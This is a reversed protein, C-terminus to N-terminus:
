FAEGDARSVLRGPANEYRKTTQTVTDTVTITYRVDSLAGYYVWFRGNVPRGDLIKIMLEVNSSNFFWFAGTDGTLPIAKAQVPAGNQFPDRFEVSVRFRGQDGLFLAEAAGFIPTDGDLVTASPFAEVDARSAIQGPPNRYSKEENTLTDRVTLTYEVDSLAGSYVWFYGNVEQGDIMKVMLELNDPGFFWFSGTDKTLALPKGTGEEGSPKRWAVRAAFRGDPGLCLTEADLSCVGALGRGAIGLLNGDRGTSPPPPIGPFTGYYMAGTTWLAVFGGSPSAEVVPDTEDFEGLSILTEDDLPQWFRDFLRGTMGDHGPWVVLANGAKDLTVAPPSLGPDDHFGLMVTSDLLRGTTDFRRAKIRSGLIWVVAGDGEPYLVPVMFDVPEPISVEGEWTQSPGNFRRLWAGFANWTVVFGGDAHVAIRLDTYSLPELIMGQNVQVPEGVPTGDPGFRRVVVKHEQSSARGLWAVIFNGAADMGVDPISFISPLSVGANIQFAGGLPQDRRFLRAWIGNSNSGWIVVYLGSGNGAVRPPGEAFPGQEVWLEKSVPNGTRDLLRAKIGGDADDNERWVAVMGDTGLSALDPTNQFGRTHQNVVFEPGHPTLEAAPAPLAGALVALLSWPILRKVSM